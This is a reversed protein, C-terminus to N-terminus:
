GHGLQYRGINEVMSRCKFDNVELFQKQVKCLFFM